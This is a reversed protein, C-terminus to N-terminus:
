ARDEENHGFDDSPVIRVEGGEVFSQGRSALGLLDDTDSKGVFQQDSEICLCAIDSAAERVGSSLGSLREGWGLLGASRAATPGAPNSRLAISHTAGRPPPSPPVRRLAFRSPPLTLHPGRRARSRAQSPATPSSSCPS